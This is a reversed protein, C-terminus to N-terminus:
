DIAGRRKVAAFVQEPTISEMCRPNACTRKHCPGCDVETRVVIHEPGYPGYKRPDTPGFLAVVPTGVAVALHMPGTDGGIFLRSQRHIHALEKLTLKGTLDYVPGETRSLIGQAMPTDGGSGILVIQVDYESLIRNVLEGYSEVPWCKSQWSTGSAMVIYPSNPDGGAERMAAEANAREEETVNIVWEPPGPEIGLERLVDLYRDIINGEIHPGCVPRSFLWSMERMNCYGLRTSAGAMKVIAASKFLGQLDLSLDFKKSRLYKTFSPANQAFGSLSTFKPRDFFILEDIDPNNTLLDYALKEVIWTIRVTPDAKKLARAVPLAHIVDGIASMRVILINRYLM